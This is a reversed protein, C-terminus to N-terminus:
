YVSLSPGSGGACEHLSILAQTAAFQMLGKETLQVDFQLSAREVCDDGDKTEQLARDPLKM